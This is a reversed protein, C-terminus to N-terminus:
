MYLVTILTCINYLCVYMHIDSGETIICMCIYMHMALGYQNLLCIYMSTRTKQVNIGLLVLAPIYALLSCSWALSVESATIDIIIKNLLVYLEALISYPYNNKLTKIKM